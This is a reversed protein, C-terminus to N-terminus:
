QLTKRKFPSEVYACSDSLRKLLGLSALRAELRRANDSFDEQDAAGKSIFERAQHDGIIIGYRDYLLALFDKFEMHENVCCVVLTKLLRDTPAYRVRRSARRSSLGILRAWTAHIKGVHQKHRVTAREVLKELLDSPTGKVEDSAIFEEPLDFSKTLLEIANVLPEQSEIAAQWETTESIKRVFREIAEQPLANNSQFSDASIDRVVSKKPSVIECVLNIQDGRQLVESGRELQYRLLHLGTMVVLHPLADYTPMDLNLISLWDEALKDFAPHKSCPVYAGDRENRALQVDGQLAKILGDYPAKAEFLRSVLRERLESAKASRCLMIYLVEGTRAFFRRDTSVSAGKGQVSADEYLANPGFPFVFKSSWRKNSGGEIASSQLFSVISEFDRFSEFRDRLYAFDPDELGGASEKMLHFWNSWMADDSQDSALVTAIHPNNFLINRLRLQQQPKYSLGNLKDERLARGRSHEAYLVGLFELMTLWPTQEDYLRHGWIAEDVWMRPGGGDDQATPRPLIEM